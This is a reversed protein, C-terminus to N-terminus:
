STGSRGQARAVGYRKLFGLREVVVTDATRRLRVTVVSEQDLSAELLTANNENALNHAEQCFRPAAASANKVDCKFNARSPLSDVETSLAVAMEDAASDLGFYNVVLAAADFLIVGAIALGLIVRVFWGAIVGREDRVLAHM